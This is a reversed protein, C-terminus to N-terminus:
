PAHSRGADPRTRLVTTAAADSLATSSIHWSELLVTGARVRFVFTEDATGSAFQTTYALTLFAGRTGYVVKWDRELAAQTAGLADHTARLLAIFAAQTWEKKLDPGAAAYIAAYQQADLQRHFAAVAAEAAAKDAPVSCAALALVVSALLGRLVRVSM